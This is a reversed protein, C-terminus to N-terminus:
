TGTSVKVLINSWIKKIEDRMRKNYERMRRSIEDLDVTVMKDVLDEVSEYYIIHPWQYFDAYRLWHRVAAEDVDDNPDPVDSGVVGRLVSRSSRQERYAAWTRQRVVGHEVHWKALLDLTPFFLPINMRYQETLSIMSVQYPIYVVAPHAALDSFRYQPYLQRLPYLVLDLHRRMIISDFEGFLKEYLETSHIPAVLFQKRTPRYSDRIYAVFNPVVYPPIGTFYEIYKADYLNNAAVLGHASRSINVLLGNLARWKAAEPRAQEYRITAIVLMPKNFPVFAECMAVPLTCVFVSVRKMTADNRYADYFQKILEPTLRMGNNQTIIRLDKACTGVHACYFSLSKDVVKVGIPALLSKIDMIPGIHYDQSWIVPRDRIVARVAKESFGTDKLHVCEPRIYKRNWLLTEDDDVVQDNADYRQGVFENEKRLVPFARAGPWRTCSVSDHCLCHGSVKPWIVTSLFDVDSSHGRMLDRVSRGLIARLQGPIGGFLGPVFALHTHNPHDRICHIPKDTKLWHDLVIQEREGPRTNADRVVFREVGVDDAILFRWLSAPLSTTTDNGLKVVEIDMNQLKRIIVRVIRPMSPTADPDQVYVRVRWGTFIIPVLQTYRLMGYLQDIGSDAALSM